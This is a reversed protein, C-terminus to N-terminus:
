PGGHYYYGEFKLKRDASDNLVSGLVRFDKLLEATERLDDISTSGERVVVVVGGIYPAIAVVDDGLRAPPLDFVFLHREHAQFSEILQRLKESSLLDPVEIPSDPIRGPVILLNEINTGLLVDDLKADSALCDVLGKTAAIGLVEAVAPKRLDADVLVVKYNGDRALSVALNISTLTKGDRPGPSTIGL